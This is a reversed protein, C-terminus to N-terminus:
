IRPEALEFVDPQILRRYDETSMVVSHTLSGANFAMRENRFVSPDVYLPLDLIPPGFPPVAGPVLGTLERLEDPTAFRTRKAGFHQRIRKSSVRLAASMVFVCFRDDVKMVIAKAGIELPEGRVRASDASTRTEEHMDHRFPIESETLLALISDLVQM